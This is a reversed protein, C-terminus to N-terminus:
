FQVVELVAHMCVKQTDEQTFTGSLDGGHLEAWLPVNQFDDQVMAWIVEAALDSPL